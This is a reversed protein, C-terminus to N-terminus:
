PPYFILDFCTFTEWFIVRIIIVEALPNKNQKTNKKKKQPPHPPPHHPLRCVGLDQVCLEVRWWARVLPLPAM